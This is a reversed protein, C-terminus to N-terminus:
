YFDFLSVIYKAFSKWYQLAKDLGGGELVMAVYIVFCIPSSTSIWLSPLTTEKAVGPDM